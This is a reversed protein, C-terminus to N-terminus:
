NQLPQGACNKAIKLQNDVPTNEGHSPQGTHLSTVMVQGGLVPERTYASEGARETERLRGQSWLSLARSVPGGTGLHWPHLWALRM